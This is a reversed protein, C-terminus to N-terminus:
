KQNDNQNDNITSLPKVFAADIEQEFSKYDDDSERENLLVKIDQLSQMIEAHIDTNTKKDKYERFQIWAKKRAITERETKM